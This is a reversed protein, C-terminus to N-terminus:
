RNNSSYEKYLHIYTSNEQKLLQALKRSNIRTPTFGWIYNDTLFVERKFWYWKYRYGETHANTYYIKRGLKKSEQWNVALCIKDVGNINRKYRQKRKDIALSGFGQPLKVKEGELAYNAYISNSTYIIDKFTKYSIPIDPHNQCFEKYNKKSASIYEIIPRAL